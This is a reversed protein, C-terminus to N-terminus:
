YKKHKTANRFGIKKHEQHTKRKAKTKTKTNLREKLKESWKFTVVKRPALIMDKGTAPNRGKRKAKQKVSFKGFGSILVDDGSALSQKILELLTEVTEISKKRIYGNSEAVADILHAKTLTGSLVM